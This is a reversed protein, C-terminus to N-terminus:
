WTLGLNVYGVLPRNTAIGLGLDLPGAPSDLTYAAGVGHIVDFLDIRAANPWMNGVDYQLTIYRRGGNHLRLALGGKWYHDGREEGYRLGVFGYRGGMVFRESEPLYTDATGAHLSLL